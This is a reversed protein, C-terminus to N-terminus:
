PERGAVGRRAATGFSAKFLFMIVLNSTSTETVNGEADLLVAAAAGREIPPRKGIPSTTTCEAQPMEIRPWGIRSVQEVPECWVSARAMIRPV